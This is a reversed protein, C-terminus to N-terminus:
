MATAALPSLIQLLETWRWTQMKIEDGVFWSMECDGVSQHLCHFASLHLNFLMIKDNESIIWCFKINVHINKLKATVYFQM